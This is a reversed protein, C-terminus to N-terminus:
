KKPKVLKKIADVEEELKDIRKGVKAVEHLGLTNIIGGTMRDMAEAITKGLEGILELNRDNQSKGAKILKNSMKHVEGTYESDSRQKLM